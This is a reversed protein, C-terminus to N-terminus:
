VAVDEEDEEEEDVDEEELIDESRCYPCVPTQFAPIGSDDVYENVWEPENFDLQCSACIYRM